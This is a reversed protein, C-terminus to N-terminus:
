RHYLRRWAAYKVLLCEDWSAYRLANGVRRWIDREDTHLLRAITHAQIGAAYICMVIYGDDGARSVRMTAEAAMEVAPIFTALARISRQVRPATTYGTVRYNPIIGARFVSLNQLVYIILRRPWAKKTIGYDYDTKPAV